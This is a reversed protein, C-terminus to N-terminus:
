KLADIQKQLEQQQKLLNSLAQEKEYKERAINEKAVYYDYMGTIREKYETDNEARSIVIDASGYYSDTEKTTISLDTTNHEKQLRQLLEILKQSSIGDSILEIEVGDRDIGKTYEKFSKIKYDSM